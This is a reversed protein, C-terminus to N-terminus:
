LKDVALDAEHPRLRIAGGSAAQRDVSDQAALATRGADTIISACSRTSMATVYGLKRLGQDVPYFGPGAIVYGGYGRVGDSYDRVCLLWELQRKDV